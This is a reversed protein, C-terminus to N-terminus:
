LGLIASYSGMGSIRAGGRGRKSLYKDRYGGGIRSISGLANLHLGVKGSEAQSIKGALALVSNAYSYDHNYTYIIRVQHDRGGKAQWGNQYLYNAVSYIADTATFLNISGDGDGDVGFPELNSPMFQCLGIAGYMSGPIRAVDLCNEAGFRILAVLENYAWDSKNRLTRELRDANLRSSQQSNGRTNLMAVTDTAAMSGLVLLAPDGGLNAGLGTEVLLIGIVVNAPVGYRKQIDAFAEAHTNIFDLIAAYTTSTVPREYGAPAFEGPRYRPSVGRAGVGHLEAVKAAMYQPSFAKPGLASFLSVMDERIFGDAVLRDILAHFVPDLGEEALASLRLSAELGLLPQVHHVPEYLPKPRLLRTIAVPLPPCASRSPKPSLSSAPSEGPVPSSSGDMPALGYDTQIDPTAGAGTHASPGAHLLAVAGSNPTAEPLSAGPLALLTAPGTGPAAATQGPHLTLFAWIFLAFIMCALIAPLYRVTPSHGM